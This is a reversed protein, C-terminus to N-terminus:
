YFCFLRAFTCIKGLMMLDQRVKIVLHHEPLTGSELIQSIITECIRSQIDSLGTIYIEVFYVRVTEKQRMIVAAYQLCSLQFVRGFMIIPLDWGNAICKTKLLANFDYNKM